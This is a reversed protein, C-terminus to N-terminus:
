NEKTALIENLERTKARFEGAQRRFNALFEDVFPYAARYREGLVFVLRQDPDAARGSVNRKLASFAAFPSADTAPDKWRRDCARLSRLEREDLGAHFLARGLDLGDAPRELLALLRELKERSALLQDYEDQFTQGIELTMGLVFHGVREQFERTDGEAGTEELARRLEGAVAEDDLGALRRRVKEYAQASLFDSEGAPSGAAIAAIRRLAEEAMAARIKAEDCCTIGAPVAQPADDAGAAARVAGGAQVLLLCLIFVATPRAM